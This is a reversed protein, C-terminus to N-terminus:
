KTFLHRSRFILFIIGDKTNLIIKVLMLKIKEQLMGLLFQGNSANCTWSQPNITAKKNEIPDPLAMYSSGVMPTYKYVGLMLGDICQLTFGSGKSSYETQETMLKTFAEEVIEQVGTDTFIARAATKFARNESSYEVHPINYTAELKLNFKIPHKCAISKLLKVLESKISDLFYVYNEINSMNKIYYWTVTRNSSSSIEVFGPSQVLNM